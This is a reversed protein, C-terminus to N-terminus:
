NQHFASLRGLFCPNLSFVVKSKRETKPSLLEWHDLRQPNLPRAIRPAGTYTEPFIFVLNETRSKLFFTGPVSLEQLGSTASGKAFRHGFPFVLANLKRSFLILFHLTVKALLNEAVVSGNSPRTSANARSGSFLFVGGICLFAYPTPDCHLLGNRKSVCSQTPLNKM